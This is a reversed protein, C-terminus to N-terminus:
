GYSAAVAYTVKYLYFIQFPGLYCLKTDELSKVVGDDGSMDTMDSAAGATSYQVERIQIPNPIPAGNALLRACKLGRHPGGDFVCACNLGGTCVSERPVTPNHYDFMRIEPRDTM